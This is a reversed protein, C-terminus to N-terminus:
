LKLTTEMNAMVLIAHLNGPSKMRCLADCICINDLLKSEQLRRRACEGSTLSTSISSSSSMSTISSLIAAMTSVHKDALGADGPKRGFKENSFPTHIVSKIVQPGCVIHFCNLKLYFNFQAM